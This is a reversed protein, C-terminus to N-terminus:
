WLILILFKSLIAIQRPLAYHSLSQEAWKRVGELDVKMGKKPVIAAVVSEGREEEPLGVVAVDEIGPM